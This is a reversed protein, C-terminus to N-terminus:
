SCEGPRARYHYRYRDVFGFRRYISIASANQEGVQLFATRAGREWARALLTGVVESGIGQGRLAPETVIDFLGAVDGEVSLVGSAVPRGDRYAVVPRIDHPSQAIRELHAARQSPPSGRMSGVVDVFTEPLPATMELDALHPRVPPADLSATMVLTPEFEVYGRAELADDLDSPQVFPTIRFLAPLGHRAYLSECRGIKEVLPLTSGYFANVSRARKARGPSLFVIWGDYLLQRRSQLNNLGIEEIRRADPLRASVPSGEASVRKPASECKPRGMPSM